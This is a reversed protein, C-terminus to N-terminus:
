KPSAASIRASPSTCAPLSRRCGAPRAHVLGCEGAAWVLRRLALLSCYTITSVAAPVTSPVTSRSRTNAQSVRPGDVQVKALAVEHPLEVQLRVRHQDLLEAAVVVCLDLCVLVHEDGTLPGVAGQGGAGQERKALDLHRLLHDGVLLAIEGVAAHEVRHAQVQGLLHEGGLREPEGQGGLQELLGEFFSFSAPPSCAASCVQMATSGRYAMHSRQSM